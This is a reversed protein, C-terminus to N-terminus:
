LNPNNAITNKISVFKWALMATYQTNTYPLSSSDFSEMM